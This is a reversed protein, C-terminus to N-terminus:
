MNCEKELPKPMIFTGFLRLFSSTRRMPIVMVCFIKARAAPKSWTCAPCSKSPLSSRTSPLSMVVGTAMLSNSFAPNDVTNSWSLIAM